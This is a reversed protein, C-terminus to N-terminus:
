KDVNQLLFLLMKADDYRHFRNTTTQVNEIIVENCAITIILLM